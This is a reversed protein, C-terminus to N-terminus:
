GLRWIDDNEPIRPTNIHLIEAENRLLGPESPVVSPHEKHTTELTYHTDKFRYERLQHDAGESPRSSRNILFRFSPMSFTIM